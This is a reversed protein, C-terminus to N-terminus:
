VVKLRGASPALHCSPSYTESTLVCRTRRSSNVASEGLGSYWLRETESALHATEKGLREVKTQTKRSVAAFRYKITLM